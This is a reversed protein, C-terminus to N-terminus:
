NLMRNLSGRGSNIETGADLDILDAETINEDITFGM